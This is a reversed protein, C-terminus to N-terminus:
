FDAATMLVPTLLTVEKRRAITTSRRIADLQSLRDTLIGAPDVHDEGYPITDPTPLMGTQVVRKQYPDHSNMHHKYIIM